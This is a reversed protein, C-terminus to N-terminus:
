LILLLVVIFLVLLLVALATGTSFALLGRGVRQRHEAVFQFRRDHDKQEKPVDTMGLEAMAQREIRELRDKREDTYIMEHHFRRPKRTQFFLNM